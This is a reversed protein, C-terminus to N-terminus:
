DNLLGVVVGGKFSWVLWALRSLARTAAVYRGTLQYQFLRNAISSDMALGDGLEAVGDAFGNDEDVVASLTEHM